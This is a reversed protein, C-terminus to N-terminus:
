EGSRGIEADSKRLYLPQPEETPPGGRALELKGLELLGAPDTSAFGCDLLLERAGGGTRPAGRLAQHLGAAAHGTLLLKPLGDVRDALEELTMALYESTRRGQEYLAAYYHRRLAALVPVVVGEYERFRFALADLNAVGILPISRGFSLGKATALGIRIGTFSGPGLCCVVLELEEPPIGADELLGGIAPLLAESHRLGAERVLTRRQGGSELCLGLAETATDIALANM